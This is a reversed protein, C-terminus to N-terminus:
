TEEHRVNREFLFISDWYNCVWYTDLYCVSTGVLDSLAQIEPIASSNCVVYVDGPALTGSLTVANAEGEAWDGGTSIRWFEVFGLNVENDGANYLEIAKNNSSGEIYESIYINAVGVVAFDYLAESISSPYYNTLYAKAKVTTTADISLAVAYLDSTEDPDTGDTTYYIEAGPTSSFIEVSQTGSYLGAAPTFYPNNVTQMVVDYSRESSTETNIDNDTATVTYFVTEGDAQAPIACTYVDGAATM